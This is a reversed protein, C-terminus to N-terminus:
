ATGQIDMDVRGHPGLVVGSFDNVGQEFLCPPRHLVTVPDVEARRRANGHALELEVGARGVVEEEDVALRGVDDLGFGGPRGEGADGLLRRLVEDPQGVRDGVAPQRQREGVLRRPGLRVDAVLAVRLGPTAAHEGEM